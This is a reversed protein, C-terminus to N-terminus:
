WGRERQGSRHNKGKRATDRPPVTKTRETSGRREWRMGMRELLCDKYKEKNNRGM